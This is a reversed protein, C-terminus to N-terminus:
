ISVFGITILTVLLVAVPVARVPVSMRTMGMVGDYQFVSPFAITFSGREARQPISLREISRRGIWYCLLACGSGIVAGTVIDGPYHVGLYIRTYVNLVTWGIMLAVIRKQRMLLCVMLALASSNSGHCSPFGYLGGRYGGVTHVFDSLPNMENAPRMRCVLPRIVTACIQDALAVAFAIFLMWMLGRRWGHRYIIMLAIAAYFPIWIFKGTAVSMFRDFFECHMSNLALLINADIKDITEIFDIM